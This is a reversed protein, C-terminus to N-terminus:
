LLGRYEAVLGIQQLIKNDLPQYYVTGEDKVPTKGENLLKVLLFNSLHNVKIFRTKVGDFFEVKKYRM